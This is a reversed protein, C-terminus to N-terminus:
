ALRRTGSALDEPLFVQADFTPLFDGSFRFWLRKDKALQYLAPNDFTEFGVKRDQNKSDYGIIWNGHLVLLPEQDFEDRVKFYAKDGDKWLTPPLPTGIEDADMTFSVPMACDRDMKEPSYEGEFRWHWEKSVTFDRGIVSVM